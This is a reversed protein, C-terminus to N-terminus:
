SRSEKHRGHPPILEEFLAILAIIHIQEVAILKIGFEEHFKFCTVVLTDSSGVSSCLEQFGCGEDLM